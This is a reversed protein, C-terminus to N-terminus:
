STSSCRASSLARTSTSRGAPWDFLDRDRDDGIREAFERSLNGCGSSTSRVGAAEMRAAGLDAAARARRLPGLAGGGSRATLIKEIRWTADADEGAYETVERDVDVQDMRVQNKGKGILDTIPIMTHDLLRQSLQDLNHNREGSELLYSLVMTDTIPGGPRHGARGLALMDYKINQGVKEIQRIPWSRDCLRSLRRRDDLVRSGIPGRVPLYYAEGAEM